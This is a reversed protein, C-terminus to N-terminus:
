LDAYSNGIKPDVRMEVDLIDSMANQMCEGLLKAEHKAYKAPATAVLQDHIPFKLMGERSKHFHYAMMAEKTQDAASGQIIYNVLKYEFNRFVGNVVRPPECYYERGGITIVPQGSRITASIDRSLEKVGPFASNYQRKFASAEHEPCELKEMVVGLGAGYLAAFNLTKAAKRTLGSLEAVLVHADIDPNKQYARMLDGDEYHAFIRMEQQSYDCGICVHGPPAIIYKRANPLEFAPKYKIANLVGFLAEWTSPLNMLNPSSSMRGTRAGKGAENRIQNFSFILKGDVANTLWPQMFTRLLTALANRVLLKGLLNKDKVCEILALKSVSAKETETLPLPHSLKKKSELAAALAQDADIDVNGLIKRLGEDEQDLIRFYRNVDRRLDDMALHVGAQEMETIVPTLRIERKYAASSTWKHWHKFVKATRVVDGIAYPGVVSAPAQSIYPGANKQSPKMVGHAVLWDRVADREDPPMGLVKEGIPKLALPGYPDALFALFMTDHWTPHGLGLHKSSVERDFGHNHAVVEDAEDYLGALINTAQVKTHSNKGPHGWSVFGPRDTGLKYAYSVPKPPYHEPRKGTEETEFDLILQKPM